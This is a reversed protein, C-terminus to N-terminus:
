ARRWERNWSDRRSPRDCKVMRGTWTWGTRFIAGPLNKNPPDGIAARVDDASVTGRRDAIEGAVHRAKVLWPDPEYDPHDLLDLGADRRQRGDTFLDLQSPPQSTM